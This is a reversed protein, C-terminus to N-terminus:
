NLFDDEAEAPIGAMSAYGSRTPHETLLVDLPRPLEDPPSESRPVFELWESEIKTVPRLGINTGHWELSSVSKNASPRSYPTRSDLRPDM